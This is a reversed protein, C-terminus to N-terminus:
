PPQLYGLLKSPLFDFGAWFWTGSSVCYWVLLLSSVTLKVPIDVSTAVGGYQYGVRLLNM